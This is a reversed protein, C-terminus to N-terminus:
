TQPWDKRCPLFLNYKLHAFNMVMAKFLFWQMATKKKEKKVIRLSNYFLKILLFLHVGTYFWIIEVSDLLGYGSREQFSVTTDGIEKTRKWTMSSEEQCFLCNSVYWIPYFNHFLISIGTQTSTTFSFYLMPLITHHDICSDLETSVPTWCKPLWLFLFQSSLRWSSEPSSVLHLWTDIWRTQTKVSLTIVVMVSM